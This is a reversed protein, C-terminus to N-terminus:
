KVALTVHHILIVEQFVHQRPLFNDMLVPLLQMPVRTVLQRQRLGQGVLDLLLLAGM